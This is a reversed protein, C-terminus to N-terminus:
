QAPRSSDGAQAATEPFPDQVIKAGASASGTVLEIGHQQLFDRASPTIVTNAATLVKGAAVAVADQVDRMTVVKHGSLDISKKENTM